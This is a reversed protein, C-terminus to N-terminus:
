NVDKEINFVFSNIRFIKQDPFKPMNEKKFLYEDDKEPHINFSINIDSVNSFSYTTKM